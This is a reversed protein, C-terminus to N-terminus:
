ARTEGRSLERHLWARAMAWDREVTARSVGLVNSARENTVLRRKQADFAGLRDLAEDLALLDISQREFWSVAEHLPERERGGGRKAAQRARAHDVLVSRMAKAAVCYFHARSEWPAARDMMRLYAEHVLATAQLTHADAQGRMRAQAIRKLEEYVLPMVRQTADEDGERALELIRTMEDPSPNAMPTYLWRM